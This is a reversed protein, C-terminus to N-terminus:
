DGSGAEAWRLMDSLRSLQVDARSLIREDTLVENQSAQLLCRVADSITEPAEANLAQALFWSHELVARRRGEEAALLELEQTQRRGYEATHRWESNWTNILHKEVAPDFRVGLIKVDLVRLGRENLRRFEESISHGKLTRGCEDLTPVHAATMRRRMMQGIIALASQRNPHRADRSAPPHMPRGQPGTREEIGRNALGKEIRDNLQRLMRAPWNNGPRARVRQLVPNPAQQPQLIEPLRPFEASFLESLTFKGLFERWLDAAILGPLENWAVMAGSEGATTASMGEGLAARQVAEASFGFRSGPATPPAPEADLRFVVRIQPIVENGDRTRASVAARKAQREEHRTRSDDSEGEPLEAFLDDDPTPGLTSTQTHLSFVAAIRERSQTFHVGPGIITDRGAESRLVAASASDVWVVGPGPRKREARGELVRGDRIFVAPGRMARQHLILRRYIGLRQRIGQVPLAFQAYFFLWLQVLVLYLVLDTLAAIALAKLPAGSLLSYAYVAAAALALVLALL